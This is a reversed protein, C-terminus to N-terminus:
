ITLRVHSGTTLPRQGQQLRTRFPSPIAPERGTAPPRRSAPGCPTAPQRRAPPNQPRISRSPSAWCRRLGSPPQPRATGNPRSLLALWIAPDGALLRAAQEPTDDGKPQLEGKKRPHARLIRRIRVQQEANLDAPDLQQLYALAAPGGARLRAWRRRAQCAPRRRSGEGPGGM